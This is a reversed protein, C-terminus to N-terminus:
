RAELRPNRSSATVICGLNRCMDICMTSRLNPRPQRVVLCAAPRQDVLQEVHEGGVKSRRDVVVGLLEAEEAHLYGRGGTGHGQAGTGGDQAGTSYGLVTSRDPAGASQGLITCWCRAGGAGHGLVTDWYQVSM